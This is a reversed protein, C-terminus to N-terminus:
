LAEGKPDRPVDSDGIMFCGDDIDMGLQLLPDDEVVPKLYKEDDWAGDRVARAVDGPEPGTSRIFNVLKFFSFCDM